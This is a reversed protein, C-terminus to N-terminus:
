VYSTRSLTCGHLHSYAQHWCGAFNADTYACPVNIIPPPTWWCQITCQSYQLLKGMAKLVPTQSTTFVLFITTEKCSTSKQYLSMYQPQQSPQLPHAVPCMSSPFLPGDDNSPANPISCCNEWLMSYQPNLPQCQSFLSSPTEKCNKKCQHTASPSPFAEPNNSPSPPNGNAMTVTMTPQKPTPLDIHFISYPSTSFKISLDISIIELSYHM